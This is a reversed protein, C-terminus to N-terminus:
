RILEDIIKLENTISNYLKELFKDPDEKYSLIKLWVKDITKRAEIHRKIQEKISPFSFYKVNNFVKM